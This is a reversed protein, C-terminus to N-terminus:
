GYRDTDRRPQIARLAEELGRQAQGVATRGAADDFGAACADMAFDVDHVALRLRSVRDREDQPATAVAEELVSRLADVRPRYAFWTSRLEVPGPASLADPVLEHALWTSEAIVTDLQARWAGRARRSRTVAVTAVAALVALLGLLWWSWTAV